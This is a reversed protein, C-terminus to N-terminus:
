YGKFMGDYKEKFRGRLQSISDHIKKIDGTGHRALANLSQTNLGYYVITYAIDIRDEVSWRDYSPVNRRTQKYVSAFERLFRSPVGRRDWFNYEGSEAIADHTRLMETMISMVNQIKASNWSIRWTLFIVFLAIFSILAGWVGGVYDGFLGYHPLDTKAPVIAELLSCFSPM